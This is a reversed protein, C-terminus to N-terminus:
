KNDIKIGEINYFRTPLKDGMFFNASTKQICIYGGCNKHIHDTKVPNNEKRELNYNPIVDFNHNGCKLCRADSKRSELLDLRKEEDKILKQPVYSNPRRKSAKKLKELNQESPLKEVPAIKDCEYCIGIVRNIPVEITGKQYIFSGWASM